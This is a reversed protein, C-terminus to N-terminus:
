FFRAIGWFWIERSTAESGGDEITSFVRLPREAARTPAKGIAAQAAPDQAATGRRADAVAICFFPFTSTLM